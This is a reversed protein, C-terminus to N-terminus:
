LFFVKQTEMVWKERGGRRGKSREGGRRGRGRVERGPEEKEYLCKLDPSHSEAAPLLSVLVTLRGKEEEESKKM